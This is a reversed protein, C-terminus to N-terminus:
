DLPGLRATPPRLRARNAPEDPTTPAHAKLTLGLNPSPAPKTSVRRVHPFRIRKQGPSRLFFFVCVRSCCVFPSCHTSSATNHDFSFVCVPGFSPCLLFLSPIVKSAEDRCPTEGKCEQGLYTLARVSCIALLSPHKATSDTCYTVLCGRWPLRKRLKKEIQCYRGSSEVISWM